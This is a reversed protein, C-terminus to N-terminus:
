RTSLRFIMPTMSPSSRGAPCNRKLLTQFGWFPNFSSIRYEVEFISSIGVVSPMIEDVIDPLYKADERAAIDFLGPTSTHNGSKDNELNNNKATSDKESVSEAIKDRNEDFYSREDLMRKAIFAFVTIAAALMLLIIIVTFVTSKTKKPNEPSEDSYHSYNEMDKYYRDDQNYDNYMDSM